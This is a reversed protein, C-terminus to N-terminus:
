NSSSYFTSTFFISQLVAIKKQILLNAAKVESLHVTNILIFIIVATSNSLSLDVM